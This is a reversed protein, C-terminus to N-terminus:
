RPPADEGPIAALAAFGHDQHEELERLILPLADPGMAIIRQYDPHAAMQDTLSLFRTERRWKEALTCFERELAAADNAQAKLPQTVLGGSASSFRSEPKKQAKAM